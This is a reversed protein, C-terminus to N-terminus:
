PKKKAEEENFSKVVESVELFTKDVYHSFDSRSMYLAPTCTRDMANLFQPDKVAKAFADDLKKLVYGPLGKPGVIGVFAPTSIGYLEEASPINEYGPIKGKGMYM